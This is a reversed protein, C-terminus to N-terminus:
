NNKYLSHHVKEYIREINLLCKNLFLYKTVNYIDKFITFTMNSEREQQFYFSNFFYFFLINKKSVGFQQVM